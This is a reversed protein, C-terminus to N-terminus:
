CGSLGRQTVLAPKDFNPYNEVWKIEFVFDTVGSNKQMEPMPLENDSQLLLTFFIQTTSSKQMFMRLIIPFKLKLYPLCLPWTEKLQKRSVLILIVVIDTIGINWVWKECLWFRNIIKILINGNANRGWLFATSKSGWLFCIQTPM